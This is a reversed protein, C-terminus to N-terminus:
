YMQWPNFYCATPLYPWMSANAESAGGKRARELVKTMGEDSGAIVIQRPANIDSVYVPAQKFHVEQVLISVQSESLGVIVSLGYGKPYLEAMMEARQRVLRVGDALTLVGAAVAASFAGASLGAVALADIGGELLTRAVAVGSALLTLQVSITSHLAEKSDLEQIDEGITERVEDQARKIVPHNPLAHLM